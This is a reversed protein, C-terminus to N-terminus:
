TGTPAPVLQDAPPSDPFTSIIEAIRGRLAIGAGETFEGNAIFAFRIPRGVDVIGVLGTASDLSGTKARVKGTLAGDIQDILTGKEGAVALGSWLTSFEPREGLDLTDGLLDCTSQNGRDLGSGDVLTVNATPLGLEELKATAAQVGAATTGQQSVKLGVERMLLESALNDSASLDEAVIDTMPPSQVKAIEVAGQPATGREPAGGVTVGRIELLRELERAAFQAPDSVPEPPRLPDFGGNVTLAGLPGVQGETRYSDRWTPLYRLDEYRSDDGVIGGPIRKVGAAAISDALAAMSTTPTGRLEPIEERAAQAEPTMLLPDGGGVLFLREVVGDAPAAPALARTELRTDPGLVALAVASTVLKQTSAPIFPVDSSQSAIPAGGEDVEFCAQVGATAGTLAAQLRQAGVADVLPQPVRRPSWIPTTLESGDAAAREEDPSAFAVVGCAAAALALVVAFARTPSM